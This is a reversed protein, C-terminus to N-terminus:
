AAWQVENNNESRRERAAPAPDACRDPRGPAENYKTTKEQRQKNIPEVSGATSAPPENYKMTEEAGQQSAQEAPVTTADTAPAEAPQEEAVAAEQQAASQAARAAQLIKASREIVRLLELAERPTVEGTAIAATIDAVAREVDDPGRIPTLAIPVPREAGRPLLVGLCMRLVANDGALAREIAHAVIEGANAEFLAEAIVTKRNRAGPPRGAPNGSQGKTFPM